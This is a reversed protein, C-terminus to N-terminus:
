QRYKPTLMPPLATGAHWNSLFHVTTSTEITLETISLVVNEAIEKKLYNQTLTQWFNHQRKLHCFCCSDKQSSLSPSLYIFAGAFELQGLSKRVKCRARRGLQQVQHGWAWWLISRQLSVSSVAMFLRLRGSVDIGAAKGSVGLM